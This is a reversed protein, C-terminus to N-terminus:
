VGSKKYISGITMICLLISLSLSWNRLYNINYIEKYDNIMESASNNKHEVLGLKKKLMKNKNREESILADLEFLRKNINNTNSQIDNSIVFLKSQIENLNSRINAYQQQYEQNQPYTKSLIYIKKFEDLIIDISGNLTNIKNIYEESKTYNLDSNDDM